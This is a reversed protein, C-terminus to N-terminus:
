GQQGCGKCRRYIRVRVKEVREALEWIDTHDPDDATLEGAVRYLHNRAHELLGNLFDRKKRDLVTM